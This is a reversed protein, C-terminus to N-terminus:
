DDGPADVDVKVGVAVASPAPPEYPPMGRGYQAECDWPEPEPVVVDTGLERRVQKVLSAAMM